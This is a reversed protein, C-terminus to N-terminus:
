AAIGIPRRIVAIAMRGASVGRDTHQLDSPAGVFRSEGVLTRAAQPVDAHRSAGLADDDGGEVAVRRRELALTVSRGAAAARREPTLRRPTGPPQLWVLCAHGASDWHDFVFTTLSVTITQGDVPLNLDVNPFAKGRSVEARHEHGLLQVLISDNTTSKTWRYTLTIDSRLDRWTSAVHARFLQSQAICGPVDTSSVTVEIQESAGPTGAPAPEPTVAPLPVTATARSRLSSRRSRVLEGLLWGSAVLLMAMVVVLGRRAMLLM